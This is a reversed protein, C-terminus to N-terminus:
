QNRNSKQMLQIIQDLEEIDKRKTDLTDKKFLKELLAETLSTNGEM